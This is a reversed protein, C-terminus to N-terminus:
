TSRAGCEKQWCNFRSSEVRIGSWTPCCTGSMRPSRLRKAVLSCGARQWTLLCSGGGTVVGESSWLEPMQTRRSVAKIRALLETHSFPKVIYDDAGMELGKVRSVEDGRATVILVPALSFMRLARLVEFGDADPLGLDLIVVDPSESEALRLGQEGPSYM